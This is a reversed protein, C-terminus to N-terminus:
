LEEVTSLAPSPHALSFSSFSYNFIMFQINAHSAAIQQQTSDSMKIKFLLSFLLFKKVGLENQITFFKKVSEQEILEVVQVFLFQILM